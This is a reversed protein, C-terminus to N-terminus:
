MITTKEHVHKRLWRMIIYGRENLQQALLESYKLLNLKM